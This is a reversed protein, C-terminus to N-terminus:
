GRPTLTVNARSTCGGVSLDEVYVPNLTSKNSALELLQAAPQYSVLSTNLTSLGSSTCVEASDALHILEDSVIVAHGYRAEAVANGSESQGQRFRSKPFWVFVPNIKTAPYMTRLRTMDTLSFSIRCKPEHHTQSSGLLTPVIEARRNHGGIIRACCELYEPDRGLCGLSCHKRCSM